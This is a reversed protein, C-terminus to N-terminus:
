TMRIEYACHVNDWDISNCGEPVKCTKTFIFATNNKRIVVATMIHTRGDMRESADQLYGTELEMNENQFQIPFDEWKDTNEHKISEYYKTKKFDIFAKITSSRM